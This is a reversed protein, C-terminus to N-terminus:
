VIPRNELYNKIILNITSKRCNLKKSIDIQRIGSNYLDIVINRDIKSQIEKLNNKTINILELNDFYFKRDAHIHCNKCLVICKDLEKLISDSVNSNCYESFKFEKNKNPHHFDLSAICKDYGCKQCENIGKYDLYKKKLIRRRLDSPERKFHLEHHCNQCLLTCKKIEKEILSWRYSKLYALNFDKDDKLNHHFCLKYFDNEGCEECCGGLVDIAKLKKAYTKIRAKYAKDTM